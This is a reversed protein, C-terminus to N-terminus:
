GLHSGLQTPIKHEISNWIRWIAMFVLHFPRDVCYFLPYEGLSLRVPELEYDYRKSMLQRYRGIFSTSINQNHFRLAGRLTSSYEENLFTYVDLMTEETQSVLTEYRVVKYRHPYKKQYHKTLGIAYLWHATAIAVEGWRGSRLTVKAEYRDRPDRIMWIMKATPYATLIFDTYFEESVAQVGWRPKGLQEAYQIHFLAFLREYSAEGQWFEARIREPDPNLLQVGKYRLMAALCHEFNDNNALNGYRRYFFSWLNSEKLPMAINPHSALLSCLLTKGSRSLGGVFIPGRDM